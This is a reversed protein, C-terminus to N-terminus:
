HSVVPVLDDAYKDVRFMYEAVNFYGIYEAERPTVDYHFHGGDGHESFCHFHEMRLNLGPDHSVFYGVASLPATMNYFRLWDDVMKDSTLPVDSYGPMVHIRAKGKTLAFVGGICVPQLGYHSRVSKQMASIFDDSDNRRLSARVELVEGPKGESIFLNTLHCGDCCNELRHLVYNGSEDDIKVIRSHNHIQGFEDANMNVIMEALKGVAHSPGAGAGVILSTTASLETMTPVLSLDYVKEMCPTPILYPVGGIDMARPSGCLGREALLFPKNRLDPCNVVKVSVQDFNNELGKQLVESLENLSPSLFRTRVVPWISM